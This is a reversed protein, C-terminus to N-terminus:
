EKKIMEKEKIFSAVLALSFGVVLLLYSIFLGVSSDLFCILGGGLGAVFFSFSM